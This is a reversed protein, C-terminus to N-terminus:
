SEIIRKGLQWYSPIGAVADCYDYMDSTQNQRKGEGVVYSMNWTTVDYGSKM